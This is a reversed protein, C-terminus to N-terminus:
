RFICFLTYRTRLLTQKSPRIARSISRSDRASPRSWVVRANCWARLPHVHGLIKVVTDYSEVKTTEARIQQRMAPDSMYALLFLTREVRGLESFAKYLSSHRSYVGLKQLLM